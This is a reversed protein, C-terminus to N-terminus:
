RPIAPDARLADDVTPFRSLWALQPRDGIPEHGRLAHDAVLQV